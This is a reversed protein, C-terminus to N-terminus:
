FEIDPSSFLSLGFDQMCIASPHLRAGSGTEEHSILDGANSEFSNLV